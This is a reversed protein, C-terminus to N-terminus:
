PAPTTTTAVTTTTAISTTTPAPERSPPVSVGTSIDVACTDKVWAVVNRAAANAAYAADAVEQLEDTKNPNAAAAMDLVNTIATFDDQITLPAVKLLRKYRRVMASADSTNRIPEGIEPLESQLQRCFNTGTRGNSGCAVLAISLAAVAM